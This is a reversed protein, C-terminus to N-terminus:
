GAESLKMSIRSLAALYERLAEPDNALDIEIEDSREAWETLRQMQELYDNLFTINSPNKEYKKVLEIYNDWWEEYEVLFQKWDAEDASTTPSPTPTPTPSPTPTPPESPPSQSITEVSGDGFLTSNEQSNTSLPEREPSKTPSPEDAEPKEHIYDDRAYYIAVNKDRAIPDYDDDSYDHSIEDNVKFVEGKKVTRDAWSTNPLISSADAEIATVNFGANELVAKADSYGIGMVNPVPTFKSGCAALAFTVALLLTTSFVSLKKM